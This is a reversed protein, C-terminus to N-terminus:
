YLNTINTITEQRLITLKDQLARDSVLHPVLASGRIAHNSKLQALFAQSATKLLRDRDQVYTSLLDLIPTRLKPRYADLLDMWKTNELDPDIHNLISLILPGEDLLNLQDQMTKMQDQFRDSTLLGDAYKQLLGRIRKEYDDRQQGAKEDESLSLHKTKEMVLDLTSKIEGM